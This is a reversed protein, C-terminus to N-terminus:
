PIVVRYFKMPASTVDVHTAIGSSNTSLTILPSFSDELLSPSFQVQYETSPAGTIQLRVSGPAPRSIELEPILVVSIIHVLNSDQVPGSAYNKLPLHDFLTGAYYIPVAAITDMAALSSSNAVRGFVTFGGNQNDLNASNDGLNFFWQNTASNPDGGLKAMALTGRTNSINFENVIPQQQPVIVVSDNVYQYGGGQIVFSPVSRHIFTNDYEKRNVYGLFNAVTAPAIDKLLVVDIDGFDTHFRVVPNAAFGQGGTLLLFALVQNLIPKAFNM